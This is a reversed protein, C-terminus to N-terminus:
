SPSCADGEPAPTIRNGGTQYSSLMAAKARELLDALSCECRSQAAGISVTLSVRDGWWRFDATRALGALAQAHSALMAATREHSIVLFEDEGWRGIHEGPRLGQNLAQEVKKLMAECAGAGHTKRLEHAQDVTIWQVGFSPGGQLLDTYLSDLRDKLDEQSKAVDGDEGTVGNPLADLGEAPHFVVAAGIRGGLDDRLVLLRAMTIVDHGMPHLVHALFTCGSEAVSGELLTKLGDPAPRGILGMAAYGTIACAAQNWFAVQYNADVLAVGEPMMELAAEVLEARNAM